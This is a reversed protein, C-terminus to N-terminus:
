RLQQINEAVSPSFGRSLLFRALRDRDHRYRQHSRQWIAAAQKVLEEERGAPFQEHLVQDILASAVGKQKLKARLWRPGVAKFRLTNEIFNQAFLRDNLLKIQHLWAVTDDVQRSTFGKRKLKLRVEAESHNRRSLIAQAQYHPDKSKVKGVEKQM